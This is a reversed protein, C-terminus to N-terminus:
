AMEIVKDVLKKIGTWVETIRQGVMYAPTSVIRNDDDVVIETAPAQVHVGGFREIHQATAEDNGITLKPKHEGLVKAVLVPSICIAGIPKKQEYASKIVKDITADVSCDTGKIAYDCLHKAVGYGGPMVLADFKSMDLTDLSSIKGRALRSAEQLVSRQATDVTEGTRHDIVHMQPVDPAFIEVVADNMDLALLASTAEYIEAGDLYGCGSIVVAVRKGAM